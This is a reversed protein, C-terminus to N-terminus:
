LLIGGTAMRGSYITQRRASFFDEAQSFTCLNSIEFNQPSVGVRQMALKNALWLDIHYKNTKENKYAIEDIIFRAEIFAEVVENGIEFYSVSISPGIGIVLNKPSCGYIDIMTLITKEPLRAVTGRWGAHVAALVNKIPDYILIPVCDATTVGICIGKEQTVIADVGNLIAQQEKNDLALFDSDVVCIADGHTQYPLYLKSTNTTAKLLERNQTVNDVDDGSYLGLNFSKYNGSSVGGSITTSFAFLSEYAILTEFQLINKHVSHKIM